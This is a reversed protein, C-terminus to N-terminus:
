CYNKPEVHTETVLNMYFIVADCV